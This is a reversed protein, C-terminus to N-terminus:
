NHACLICTPPKLGRCPQPFVPISVACPGRHPRPKPYQCLASPLGQQVARQWQVGCAVAIDVIPLETQTVLGRARDLRVDLYYRVPTIGSHQQFLRELQRQSLANKRAIDGISLPQELNREM